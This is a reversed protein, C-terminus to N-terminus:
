MSRVLNLAQRTYDHKALYRKVCADVLAPVPFAANIKKITLVSDKLSVMDVNNRDVCHNKSYRNGNAKFQAIAHQLQEYRQELAVAQESAKGRVCFYSLPEAAGAKQLRIRKAPNDNAVLKHAQLTGVKDAVAYHKTATDIFAVGGKHYAGPIAMIESSYPLRYHQGSSDSQLKCFAAAETHTKTDHKHVPQMFKLNPLPDVITEQKEKNGQLYMMLTEALKAAAGGTATGTARFTQIAGGMPEVMLTVTIESSSVEDWYGYVFTNAQQPSSVFDFKRQSQAIMHNQTLATLAAMLQHVLSAGVGKQSEAKFQGYDEDFRKSAALLAHVMAVDTGLVGQSLSVLEVSRRTRYQERSEALYRNFANFDASRVVPIKHFIRYNNSAQMAAFSPKAVALAGFILMLGLFLILFNILRTLSM